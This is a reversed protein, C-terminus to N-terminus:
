LQPAGLLRGQGCHSSWPVSGTLSRHLGQLRADPDQTALARSSPPHPTHVTRPGAPVATPDPCPGQLTAQPGPPRHRGGYPEGSPLGQGRGTGSLSGQAPGCLSGPQCWPLSVCALDVRAGMALCASVWGGGVVRGCAAPAGKLSAWPCCASSGVATSGSGGRGTHSSLGHSCAPRASCRGGPGALEGPEASGRVCGGEAGRPWHVRLILFGPLGQGGGETVAGPVERFSADVLLRPSRTSVSAVSSSAPRACPCSGPDPGPM